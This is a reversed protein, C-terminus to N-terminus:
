RKQVDAIDILAGITELVDKPDKNAQECSSRVMDACALVIGALNGKVKSTCIGNDVKVDIVANSHETIGKLRALQGILKASRTLMDITNDM